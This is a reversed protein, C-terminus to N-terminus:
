RQFSYVLPPTQGPPKTAALWRRPSGPSQGKSDLSAPKQPLLSLRLGWRSPLSSPLPAINCSLLLVFRRQQPPSRCSRQTPHSERSKLTTSGGYVYVFALPWPMKNRNRNNILHRVNAPCTFVASCCSCVLFPIAYSYVFAEKGIGQCYRSRISAMIAGATNHLPADDAPCATELRGGDYPRELYQLKPSLELDQLPWTGTQSGIVHHLKPSDPEIDAKVM